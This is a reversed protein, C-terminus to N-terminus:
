RLPLRQANIYGEISCKLMYRDIHAELKAPTNLNLLKLM